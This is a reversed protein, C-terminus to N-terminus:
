RASKRSLSRKEEQRAQKIQDVEDILERVKKIGEPRDHSAYSLDGDREKELLRQQAMQIKGGLTHQQEGATSKKASPHGLTRAGSLNRGHWPRDETEM